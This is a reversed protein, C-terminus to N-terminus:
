QNMSVQRRYLLCKMGPSYEGNTQRYQAQLVNWTVNVEVRFGRDVLTMKLRFDNFLLM